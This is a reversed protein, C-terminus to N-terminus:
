QPSNSPSPSAEGGSLLPILGRLTPGITEKVVEMVLQLMTGLDTQEEFRLQGQVIMAAWQQGTHMSCVGLCKKLVYNVDEEPMQALIETVPGLAEFILENQQAQSIEQGNTLADPVKRLAEAWGRGMGSIVPAVKRAVHAQDFVPMKGIMFRHGNVEVEAM